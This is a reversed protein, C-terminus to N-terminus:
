TKKLILAVSDKSMNLEQALMRLSMHCDQNLLARVRAENEETVATSPRGSGEDDELSERGKENKDAEAYTVPLVSTIIDADILEGCVASDNDFTVFDEFETEQLHLEEQVRQWTRALEALPLDNGKDECPVKFGVKRSATKITKETVLNWTKATMWM